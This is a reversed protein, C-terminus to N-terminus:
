KLGMRISEEMGKIFTQTESARKDPVFIGRKEVERGDKTLILQFTKGKMGAFMPDDIEKVEWEYGEPAESVTYM